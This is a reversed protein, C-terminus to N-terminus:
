SSVIQREKTLILEEICKLEADFKKRNPQPLAPVRKPVTSEVFESEMSSM